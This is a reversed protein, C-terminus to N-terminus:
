HSSIDFIVQSIDIIFQCGLCVKKLPLDIVTFYSNFQLIYKAGFTKFIADSFKLTKLRKLSNLFDNSGLSNEKM